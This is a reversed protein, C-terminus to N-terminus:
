PTRTGESTARLFATTGATGVLDLTAGSRSRYEALAEAVGPWAPDGVDDLLVLAGPEM